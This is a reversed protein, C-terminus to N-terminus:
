DSKAPVERPPPRQQPRRERRLFGSSPQQATLTLTDAPRAAGVVQANAPTVTWHVRLELVQGDSVVQPVARALATFTRSTDIGQSFALGVACSILLAVAVAHSRISM